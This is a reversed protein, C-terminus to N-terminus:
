DALAPVVLVKENGAEHLQKEVRELAEVYDYARVGKKKPTVVIHLWDEDQKHGSVQLQIGTQGREANLLRQTEKLLEQVNIQITKSM